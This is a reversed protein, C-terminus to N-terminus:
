AHSKVRRKTGEERCKEECLNTWQHTFSWIKNMWVAEKKIEEFSHTRINMTKNTLHPDSYEIYWLFCCPLVQWTAAIVLRKKDRYVCPISNPTIMIPTKKIEETETPKWLNLEESYERSKRFIFKYFWIKKALQKAIEIQHENQKFVIFQWEALGGHQIFRLANKLILSLNTGVRYSSHIEQTVGDIWFIVYSKTKWLREWFDPDKKSGNTNISVRINHSRFFEVIPLFDKAYIPDWWTWSLIILSTNALIKPTFFQKIDWLSLEHKKEIGFKTRNCFHCRANCMNTLEINFSTPEWIM